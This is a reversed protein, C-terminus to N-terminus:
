FNVKDLSEKIQKLEANAEENEKNLEVIKSEIYKPNKLYKIEKKREKIMKQIYTIKEKVNRNIVNEKVWDWIREKLAPDKEFLKDWDKYYKNSYLMQLSVLDEYDFLLYKEGEESTIKVENIVDSFLSRHYSVKYEKGINEEVFRSIKTYPMELRTKIQFEVLNERDKFKLTKEEATLFKDQIKILEKLMDQREKSNKNKRLELLIEQRKKVIGVFENVSMNELRM